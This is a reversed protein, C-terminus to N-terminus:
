LTFYNPYLEIKPEANPYLLEFMDNCLKFQKIYLPLKETFDCFSYGAQTRSNLHLIAVKAEPDGCLWYGAVQVKHKDHISTSTKYDVVYLGKYYIKGKVYNLKCLLDRTGAVRYQHNVVMEESSIFEPQFEKAWDIFAQVCRKVKLPMMETSVKHGAILQDIAIHAETGEEGAKEFIAQGGIGQERIWQLLFPHKPYVEDIKTTHSAYCWVREDEKTIEEYFRRGDISDDIRRIINM